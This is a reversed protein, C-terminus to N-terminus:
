HVAVNNLRLSGSGTFAVKSKKSIRVNKLTAAGSVLLASECDVDIESDQVVVSANADVQFPYHTPASHGSFKCSKVVATERSHDKDFLWIAMSADFTSGKVSLLGGKDYVIGHNLDRFDCNDIKLTAGGNFVVGVYGGSQAFKLSRLSVNINEGAVIIGNGPRANFCPKATLGRAPKLTVSQSITLGSDYFITCRGNQEGAETLIV